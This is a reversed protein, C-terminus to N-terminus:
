SYIEVTGSLTVIGDQVSVKVDKFRKNDLAKMVQTQIQGDSAGHGVTGATSQARGVCDGGFVLMGALAGWGAIKLSMRMKMKMSRGGLTASVSLCFMQGFEQFTPHLGRNSVIADGCSICSASCERSM